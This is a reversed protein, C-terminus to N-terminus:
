NCNIYQWTAGKAQTEKFELCIYKDGLKSERTPHRVSIEFKIHGLGIDGDKGM